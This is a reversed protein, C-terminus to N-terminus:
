RAYTADTGTFARHLDEIRKSAEPPLPRAVADLAFDLQEVSAPGVLLSDVEPHAAVWAYALAALTLKEETALARLAEVYTFFHESWYRRQYMPNKDFRSGATITEQHHERALLGGALVNYVTTHVPYRKAFKFYEIELQRILLNYMQQSLVPRPMSAEDCLNMIELIQWSAYNSVGFQRIKGAKLLSEIAGLTEEIRTAPDPAHLYYVDVYDTGLRALSQDCADLVTARALGEAKGGVRLLGVKTAIKVLTRKKALAAGILKESEGDYYANATDFYTCGRELARGIIRESEKKPTRKGFNMAGIAVLAPAGVERPEFWPEARSNM